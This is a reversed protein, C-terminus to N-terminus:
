RSAEAGLRELYLLMRRAGEETLEVFKRRGDRADPRRMTVGADCLDDLRRLATTAPVGAALCLSSVSVQKGTLRALTLDLLMDWAPDAFLEAPFFSTRSQRARMMRRVAAVLHAAEDVAPREQAQGRDHHAVGGAGGVKTARDSGQLAQVVAGLREIEARLDSMGSMPAQAARAIEARQRAAGIAADTVAGVLDPRGVPKRLFAHVGYRMADIALDASVHGTVVVPRLWPREVARLQIAALLSLGDVGPMRIDTVIVDLSPTADILDIAPAGSMALLCRFNTLQLAEAYEALTDPEDDVVLVNAGASARTRALGAVGPDPTLVDM